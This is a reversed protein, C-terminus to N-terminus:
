KLIEIKLKSLLLYFNENSVYKPKSIYLLPSCSNTKNSYGWIIGSKIGFINKRNQGFEISRVTDLISM